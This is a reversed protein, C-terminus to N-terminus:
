RDEAAADQARVAATPLPQPMARPPALPRAPPLFRPQRATYLMYFPMALGLLVILLPLPWFRRQRRLADRQIRLLEHQADRIDTLLQLISASEGLDQAAAQGAPQPSQYPNVDM